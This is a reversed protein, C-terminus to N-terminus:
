RIFIGCDDGRSRKGSDRAADTGQHAARERRQQRRRGSCRRAVGGRALPGFRSFIFPTGLGPGPETVIFTGKYWGTMFMQLDVLYLEVSVDGLSGTWTGTGDGVLTFDGEAGCHSVGVVRAHIIPYDSPQPPM